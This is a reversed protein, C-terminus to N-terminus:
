SAFKSRAPSVVFSATELAASRAQNFRERVAVAGHDNVVPPKDEPGPMGSRALSTAHYFIL